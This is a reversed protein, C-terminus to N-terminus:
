FDHEDLDNVSLLSEFLPLYIPDNECTKLANLQPQVEENLQGGNLSLLLFLWSTCFQDQYEEGPKWHTPIDVEADALLSAASLVLFNECM